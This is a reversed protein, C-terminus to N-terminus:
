VKNFSKYKQSDIIKSVGRELCVQEKREQVTMVPLRVHLEFRTVQTNSQSSLDVECGPQNEGPLFYSLVQQLSLKTAVLVTRPETYSLFIEQESWSDFLSTETTWGTAEDSYRSLQGQDKMVQCNILIDM